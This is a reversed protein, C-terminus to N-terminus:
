DEGILRAGLNLGDATALRLERNGQVVHSNTLVLGDPSIVVGSGVGGRRGARGGTEVRVVAPGVADVVGAVARSYADLLDGDDLPDPALPRVEAPDGSDFIFTPKPDLM